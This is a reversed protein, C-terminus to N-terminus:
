EERVAPAIEVGGGSLHPGDVRKGEVYGYVQNFETRSYSFPTYLHRHELLAKLIHQREYIGDVSGPVDSLLEELVARSFENHLFDFLPLIDKKFRLDDVNLM